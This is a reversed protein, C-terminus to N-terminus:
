PPTPMKTDPPIYVSYSPPPNAHRDYDDDSSRASPRRAMSLGIASNAGTGTGTGASEQTPSNATGRSLVTDHGISWTRLDGGDVTSGDLNEVIKEKEDEEGEEEEEGEETGTRTGTGTGTGTRRESETGVEDVMTGMTASSIVQDRTQKTYSSFAFDEGGPGGSRRRTDMTPRRVVPSATGSGSPSTKRSAAPYYNLPIGLSNFQRMGRFYTPDNEENTSPRNNPNHREDSSSGGRGAITGEFLGQMNMSTRNSDNYNYQQQGGGSMLRSSPRNFPSTIIQSFRRFVSGPGTGQSNRNSNNNRGISGNSNNDVNNRGQRRANANEELGPGHSFSSDTESFVTSPRRRTPAAAAVNGAGAGAGGVISSQNRSNTQQGDRRLERNIESDWAGAPLPSVPSASNGLGHSKGMIGNGIGSSNNRNMSMRGSMNPVRDKDKDRNGNLLGNGITSNFSRWLSSSPPGSSANSIPSNPIGTDTAATAAMSPM